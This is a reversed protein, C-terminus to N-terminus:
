LKGKLSCTDKLKMTATVTQLSKQIGLFYFRDSSGSKERRTVMFHHSWIGHDYNKSPYM